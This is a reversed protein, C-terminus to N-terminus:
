DNASEKTNTANDQTDEPPQFTAGKLSVSVERLDVLKAFEEWCVLRMKANMVKNATRRTLIPLASFLLAANAAATLWVTEKTATSWMGILLTVVVLMFLFDYVVAGTKLIRGPKDTM